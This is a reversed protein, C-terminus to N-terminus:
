CARRLKSSSRTPRFVLNKSRRSSQLNLGRDRVQRASVNVAIRFAPYRLRWQQAQACAKELVLNGIAVILGMEEAVPIFVGPAIVGRKPHKWRVLAEAGRVEGQSNVLPQYYVVFQDREVATRLESELATRGAIEARM